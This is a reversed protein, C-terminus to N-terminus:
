NFLGGGKGGYGGHRKLQTIEAINGAMGFTSTLLMLNNKSFLGMFGSTALKILEWEKGFKGAGDNLKEQNVIMSRMNEVSTGLMDAMSQRQYGNLNM